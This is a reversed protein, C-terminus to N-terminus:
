DTRALAWNVVTKWRQEFLGLGHLWGDYIKTTCSVGVKKASSCVATLTSPKVLVDAKTGIILIPVTGAVAQYRPTAAKWKKWCSGKYEWPSCDLLMVAGDSLRHLDSRTTNHAMKWAAYPSAIPSLGVVGRVDAGAFAATLVLHGGSSSGIIVGRDPDIGLLGANDKVWDVATLIDDRPAPYTTGGAGRYDIAIVVFGANHFRKPLVISDKRSGGNWYGGHVFMAWRSDPAAQGYVDLKLGPAFEHTATIPAPTIAAVDRGPRVDGEIEPLEAPDLPAIPDVPEATETGEGPEGPEGGPAPDGVGARSSTVPASEEPVPASLAIVSTVALAGAAAIAAAAALANRISRRSNTM